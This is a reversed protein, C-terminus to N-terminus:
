LSDSEDCRYSLTAKSVVASNWLRVASTPWALPIEIRLIWNFWNVLYRRTSIQSKGPDMIRPIRKPNIDNSNLIDTQHTLDVWHLRFSKSPQISGVMSQRQCVFRAGRLCVVILKYNLKDIPGSFINYLGWVSALMLMYRLGDWDVQGRRDM